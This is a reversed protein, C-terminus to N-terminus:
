RKVPAGELLAWASAAMLASGKVLVEEDFDFRPHHHAANLGKEANASGVMFYCGPVKEMMYAMDESGMTRFSRDLRSEPLLHAAAGQVFDTVQADNVV